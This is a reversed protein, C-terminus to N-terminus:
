SSDKISMSFNQNQCGCSELTEIPVVNAVKFIAEVSDETGIRM